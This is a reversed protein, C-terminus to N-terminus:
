DGVVEEGKRAECRMWSIFLSSTQHPAVLGEKENGKGLHREPPISYRKPGLWDFTHASIGKPGGNELQNFDSLLFSALAPNM